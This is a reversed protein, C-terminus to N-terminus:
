GNFLGSKHMENLVVRAHMLCDNVRQEQGQRKSVADYEVADYINTSAVWTQDGRDIAFATRYWRGLVGEENAGYFPEGSDAILIDAHDEAIRVIPRM